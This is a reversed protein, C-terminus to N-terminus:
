EHASAKRTLRSYAAMLKKTVPGPLGNGVPQGQFSTLPMLEMLSNTLFAEEAKMLAGPALEEIRVDVKEQSAIELVAQRTIGPLLGSEVTPTCLTVGLLLFLNSSSCETLTGKENLMVAEDVGAKRAEQRALISNLYSTTKLRSLISQSDRRFSSLIASFGKDYTQPKPPIYKQAAVIVTVKKCTAPDPVMEGEGMSVSLRIRADKLDNAELTQLIASAIEAKGPLEGFRLTEASQYLRALHQELLFVHGDYARMTEFLGYGYLFGHDFPSIRARSLPVLVGNVYIVREELEGM